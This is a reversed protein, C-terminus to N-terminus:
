NCCSPSASSQKRNFASDLFSIGVAYLKRLADPRLNAPPQLDDDQRAKVARAKKIQDMTKEAGASLASQKHLIYQRDNAKLAVTTGFRSHRSNNARVVVPRNKEELDLLEQLRNDELKRSPVMLDAPKVSRFILHFIDLAVM